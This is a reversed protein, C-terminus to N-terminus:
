EEECEALVTHPGCRPHASRSILPSAAANDSRDNQEASISTSSPFGPLAREGLAICPCESCSLSAHVGQMLAALEDGKADNGLCSVFAVPIDLQGCGCAVNCPAGGPYGSWSSVEEKPVGKDDALMDAVVCSRSNNCEQM